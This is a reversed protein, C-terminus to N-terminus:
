LFVLIGMLQQDEVLGIDTDALSNVRCWLSCLDASELSIAVCLKLKKVESCTATSFNM